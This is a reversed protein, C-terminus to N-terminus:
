ALPNTKYYTGGGTTPITTGTYATDNAGCWTGSLGAQNIKGSTAFSEFIIVQKYANEYLMYTLGTASAFNWASLDLITFASSERVASRFLYTM